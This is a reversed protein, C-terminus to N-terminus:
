RRRGACSRGRAASGASVDVGAWGAQAAPARTVGASHGLHNRSRRASRGRARRRRPRPLARLRGPRRGDRGGPDRRARPADGRAALIRPREAAPTRSRGCGGPTRARSPAHRRATTSASRAAASTSPRTSTARPRRSPGAPCRWSSRMTARFGAPELATGDGTALQPGDHLFFPVDAGLGAALRRSRVPRSRNPCCATQSPLAAAADSSGGGLGAAVPIRKEIRAEFFSVSGAARARGGRAGRRVLTDGAFGTVRTAPAPRVAVTDALSLRELVTVVEHKGDDRLPGVVLALNLKAPAAAERWGSVPSAETLRVFEEPELAEARVDPRRGITELAAVAESARRSGPSRSRTRSRRAAIGSRATSSAACTARREAAARDARLRRPRLRREAAPPLGNALGPPLRDARAHLRVLVSVAGYAKTGPEAFFRDAVERQVM